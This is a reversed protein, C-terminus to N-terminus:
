LVGRQLCSDRIMIKEERLFNEYWNHYYYNQVHGTKSNKEVTSVFNKKIRLFGARGKSRFIVLPSRSLSARVAVVKQKRVQSVLWVESWGKPQKQQLFRRVLGSERALVTPDVESDPVGYNFFDRAPFKNVDHWVIKGGLLKQNRVFVFHPGKILIKHSRLNGKATEDKWSLSGTFMVEWTRDHVHWLIGPQLCCM